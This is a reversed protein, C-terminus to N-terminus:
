QIKLLYNKWTIKNSLDIDYRSGKYSKDKQTTFNMMMEYFNKNM